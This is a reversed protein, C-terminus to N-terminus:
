EESRTVGRGVIRLPAWHSLYGHRRIPDALFKITAQYLAEPMLADLVRYLFSNLFRNALADDALESTTAAVSQSGRAFAITALTLPDAPNRDPVSAGWCAVLVVYRPPSAGLLDTPALPVGDGLDFYHGVGEAPHGHCTLVVLDYGGKVVATQAAVPSKLETLDVRNDTIAELRHSRVGPGQWHAVRRVPEVLTNAAYRAVTLSPSVVMPAHEGLVRDNGISFASWPLSWLVGIPVILLDEGSPSDFLDAPVLSELSDMFSLRADRPLGTRSVEAVLDMCDISLEHLGYDPQRGPGAKLWVLQDSSLMAVVVVHNAAALEELLTVVSEPDVPRYLRAGLDELAAAAVSGMGAKLGLRGLMRVRRQAATLGSLDRGNSPAMQARAQLQGTLEANDTGPLADSSIMGALRRGALSELTLLLAAIDRGEVAARASASYM